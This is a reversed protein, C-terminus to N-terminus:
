VGNVNVIKLGGEQVTQSDLVRLQGEFVLTAMVPQSVHMAPHNSVQQRSALRHPADKHRRESRSLLAGKASRFAVYLGKASRFAAKSSRRLKPRGNQQRDTM